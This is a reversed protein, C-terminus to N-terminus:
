LLHFHEKAKIDNSIQDAIIINIFPTVEFVEAMLQIENGCPYPHVWVSKQLQFFNLKKLKDRLVNRAARKKDPIDFIIIRWKQDWREPKTIELEDFQYQKVKRKGKETLEVIIKDDEEKLIILQNRKLYSLAQSIKRKDSNKYKKNKLYSKAINPLFYPSTAAIMIAGTLLLGSLIKRATSREM